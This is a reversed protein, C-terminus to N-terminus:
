EIIKDFEELTLGILLNYEEMNVSCMPIITDDESVYYYALEPHLLYVYTDAKAHMKEYAQVWMSPVNVDTSVLIGMTGKINPVESFYQGILLITKGDVDNQGYVGNIMVEYPYVKVKKDVDIGQNELKEEIAIVVKDDATNVYTFTVPELPIIQDTIILSIDGNASSKLEDITPYRLNILAKQQFKYPPYELALTDKYEQTDKTRDGSCGCLLLILIVFNILIRKNM